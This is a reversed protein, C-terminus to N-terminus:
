HFYVERDRDREEGVVGRTKSERKQERDRERQRTHIHSQTHEPAASIIEFIAPEIESVSVNGSLNRVHIKSRVTAESSNNIEIVFLLHTTSILLM